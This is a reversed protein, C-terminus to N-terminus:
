YSMACTIRCAAAGKCRHNDAEQGGCNVGVYDEWYDTYVKACQRYVTSRPSSTQRKPCQKMALTSMARYGVILSTSGALPFKKLPLLDGLLWSDKAKPQWQPNDPQLRPGQRNQQGRRTTGNKTIDHSEWTLCPMEITM